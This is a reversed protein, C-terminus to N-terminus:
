ALYAPLNKPMQMEEPLWSTDPIRSSGNFQATLDFQWRKNETLYSGSILGKYSNVFPKRQFTGNITTKVDSYRIAATLEFQFLPELKIEIQYNNAFSKGNLNYFRVQTRDADVDVIMQNVFHTRYYEATVTAENSFLVFSQSLNLGYNWAERKIERTCYIPSKSIMLGTNEALLNPLRYGKGISGRVTQAAINSRLHVESYFCDMNTTIIVIRAFIGTFHEHYHFTISWVTRFLM